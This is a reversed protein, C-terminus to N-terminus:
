PAPAHLEVIAIAPHTDNLQIAVKDPFDEWDENDQPLPPHHREAFLRRLFVAARPATGQRERDQREPLSGQLHNRQPEKRARGRRLRRPQLGRSRVRRLRQSEWLRLFNVTNTGIAPFRFTTPCASSNRRARGARSMTAATTSSTRWTATSRSRSPTSPACSRGRPASTADLRRAARGPPRQPIGAQLPRIPLPHRLRHRSPRPHGALRPLLRRAPRPRRQRPGHRIGRPSTGRLRSGTGGPRAGHRRDVGASYLSNSFLRGMLFELSLYYVRKANRNNHVTATAIMREIIIGQVAKSTALWWDRKTATSSDRALSFKLSGQVLAKLGPVSKDLASHFQSM